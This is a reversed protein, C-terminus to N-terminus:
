RAGETASSAPRGAASAADLLDRRALREVARQSLGGVGHMAGALAGALAGELAPEVATAIAAAIAQDVDGAAIVAARVRRIAQVADVAQSTAADPGEGRLQALMGPHM